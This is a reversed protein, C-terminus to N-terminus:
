MRMNIIYLETSGMNFWFMIKLFFHSLKKYFSEYSISQKVWQTRNLESFYFSSDLYKKNKTEFYLNNYCSVIANYPSYSYMDTFVHLDIDVNRRSFLEYKEKVSKAKKLQNQILQRNRTKKFLLNKTLTSLNFTNLSVGQVDKENYDIVTSLTVYASDFYVNSVELEGKMYSVLGLLNYFSSIAPLNFRKKSKLIQIAKSFYYISQQYYLDISTPNVRDLNVNGRSRCYDVEYMTNQLQHKKLLLYASDFDTNLVSYEVNMNRRTNALNQHLKIWLKSKRYPDLRHFEPYIKNFIIISKDPKVEFNYYRMLGIAYEVKDEISFNKKKSAFYNASDLQKKYDEVFHMGYFSYAIQFYIKSKKSFSNSEKLEKRLANISNTFYGHNYWYHTESEIGYTNWSIFVCFLIFFTKM